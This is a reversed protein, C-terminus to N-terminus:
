CCLVFVSFEGKQINEDDVAITEKSIVKFGHQPAQLEPNNTEGAFHFFPMILIGRQNLHDKAENFFRHILDGGDFIARSVPIEPIPDSAFFPQNFIIVDFREPVRAFLDGKRVQCTQQLKFLEVNERTNDFAWTSIDSLVVSRAGASAAILGQIGSGCGMDLVNRGKFLNQHAALFHGFYLASTKEPRLVNPWVSFGKFAIGSGLELDISYKKHEHEKLRRQNLERQEPTLSM